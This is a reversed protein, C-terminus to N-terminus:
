LLIIDNVFVLGDEWEDLCKEAVSGTWSGDILWNSKWDGWRSCRSSCNMDMYEFLM